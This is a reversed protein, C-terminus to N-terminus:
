AQIPEANKASKRRTEAWKSLEDCYFVPMKPDTKERFHPIVKLSVYSNFTGFTIIEGYNSCLFSYANRNGYIKKKESKM